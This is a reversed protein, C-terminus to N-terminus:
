PSPTSTTVSATHHMIVMSRWNEPLVLAAAILRIASEFRQEESPNSKLYDWWWDLPGEVCGEWSGDECLCLSLQTVPLELHEAVVGHSAEHISVREESNKAQEDDDPKTPTRGHYELQAGVMEEIPDM